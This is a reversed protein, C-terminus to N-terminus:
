QSGEAGKTGSNKARHRRSHTTNRCRPTCYQAQAANSVFYHNCRECQLCRRGATRDWLFMLAYSALLGASTRTDDLDDLPVNQALDKLFISARRVNRDQQDPTREKDWQQLYDVSKGFFDCYRGIERVPEGYTRWFEDTLPLPPIFRGGVNEITPFFDRVDNLPLEEHARTRFNFWTMSGTAGGDKRVRSTTGEPTLFWDSRRELEVSWRRGDRVYQTQTASADTDDDVADLRISTALVPLLDLLGHGNCFTLILQDAANPPDSRPGELTRWLHTPHVGSQGLDKLQRYLELFDVYPQGVTRYRGANNRFIEWPDSTLLTAGMAPAVVGGLLEHRDYRVVTGHVPIARLRQRHVMSYVM